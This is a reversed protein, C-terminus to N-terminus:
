RDRRQHIIAVVQITRPNVRYLLIHPFRDMVYERLGARAAQRYIVPLTGLREAAEIVSSVARDAVTPGAEKLLYAEIAALQREARPSFEVARVLVSGGAIKLGGSSRM